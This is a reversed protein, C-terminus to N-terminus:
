RYLSPCRPVTLKRVRYFLVCERYMGPRLGRKDIWSHVEARQQELQEVWGQAEALQSELQEIRESYPRVAQNFAQALMDPMPEIKGSQLQPNSQAMHPVAAANHGNSLGRSYADQPAQSRPYMDKDDTPSAVTPPPQQQQSKRSSDPRQDYEQNNDYSQSRQPTEEIYSNARSRRKFFM